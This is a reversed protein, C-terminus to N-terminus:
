KVEPSAPHAKRYPCPSRLLRGAGNRVLRAYRSGIGKAIKLLGSTDVGLSLSRIVAARAIAKAQVTLKEFSEVKVAMHGDRQTPLVDVAQEDILMSFKLSASGDNWQFPALNKWGHAHVTMRLDYNCPAALRFRTLIM